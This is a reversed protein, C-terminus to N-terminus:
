NGSMYCSAFKLFSPWNPGDTHGGEHQRFALDAALLSTRIPPMDAAGLVKKVPVEYVAKSNLRHAIAMM